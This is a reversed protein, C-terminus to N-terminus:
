INIREATITEKMRRPYKRSREMDGEGVGETERGLERQRGGM